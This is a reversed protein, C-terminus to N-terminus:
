FIYVHVREPRLFLFCCKIPSTGPREGALIHFQCCQKTLSNVRYNTINESAM